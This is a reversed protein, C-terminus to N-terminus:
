PGTPGPEVTVSFVSSVGAGDKRVHLFGGSARVMPLLPEIMAIVRKSTIDWYPAGESRDDLHIHVRLNPVRKGLPFERPFITQEGKEWAIVRFRWEAPSRAKMTRRAEVQGALRNNEERLRLIEAIMDLVGRSPTVM